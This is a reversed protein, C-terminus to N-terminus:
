VHKLSNKIGKVSPIWYVSLEPYDQVVSNLLFLPDHNSAVVFSSSSTSMCNLTFYTSRLEM